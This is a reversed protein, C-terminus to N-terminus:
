FAEDVGSGTIFMQFSYPAILECLWIYQCHFTEHDNNKIVEM